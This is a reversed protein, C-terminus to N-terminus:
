STEWHHTQRYLRLPVLHVKYAAWRASASTRIHESPTRGYTGVRSTRVTHLIQKQSHPAAYIAASNHIYFYLYHYPHRVVMNLAIPWIGCVLVLDWGFESTLTHLPGSTSAKSVSQFCSVALREKKTARKEGHTKVNWIKVQRKLNQGLWFDVCVSFVRNSTCRLVAIRLFAIRRCSFSLM